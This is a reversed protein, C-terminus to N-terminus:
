MDLRARLHTGYGQALVAAEDEVLLVQLSRVVRDDAAHEDVFGQGKGVGVGDGDIGHRYALRM